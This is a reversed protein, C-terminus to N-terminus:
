PICENQRKRYSPNCAWGNGSLDIHANDPVQLAVCADDVAQYGRDCRWGSGYASDALYGNAPVSIALCAGDVARYGHDCEWGGGYRKAHANGPIAAPGDQAQSVGAATALLALLILPHALVASRRRKTRM